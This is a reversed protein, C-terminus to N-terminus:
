PPAQQPPSPARLYAGIGASGFFAVGAAIGAAALSTGYNPGNEVLIAFFAAGAAMGAHALAELYPNTPM